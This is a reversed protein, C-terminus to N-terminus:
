NIVAKNNKKQLLEFDKIVSVVAAFKTAQQTGNYFQYFPIDGKLAVNWKQTISYNIQPSIFFLTGGSNTYKKGDRSDRGRIENTAQLLITWHVNFSKSFVFSTSFNNGSRYRVFNEGNVDTRHILFLRISKESYAKHFFLQVSTGFAGTSPQVTQSLEVGDKSLPKQTFPYKFGVAGTFEFEPKKTFAYKMSTVGNSLGSGNIIIAPVRDFTESRNWYYGIENQITLRDTIGFSFIGGSYNYDAKQVFSFDSPKSGDYYVDAYNYRHFVLVRLTNKTLVGINVSGAVPNATCCQSFGNHALSFFVLLLLVSLQNMKSFIYGLRQRLLIAVM